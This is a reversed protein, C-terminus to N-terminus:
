WEQIRRHKQTKDRMLSPKMRAAAEGPSFLDWWGEPANSLWPIRFATAKAPPAPSTSSPKKAGLCATISALPTRPADGGGGVVPTPATESLAAKNCPM